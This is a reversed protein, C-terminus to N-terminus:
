YLLLKGPSSFNTELLLGGDKVHYSQEYAVSGQIFCYVAFGGVEFSGAITLM